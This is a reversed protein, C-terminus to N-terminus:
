FEVSMWPMTGLLRHMFQRLRETMPLKVSSFMKRKMKKKEPAKTNQIKQPLIAIVRSNSITADEIITM